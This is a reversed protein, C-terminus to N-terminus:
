KGICFKSFIDKLLKKSHNKGTIKNLNKQIIKLEEAFLDNINKYKKNKIDYFYFFAKKFHKKIKKLIILQKKNIIYKQTSQIKCNTINKLESKLINIGINKKASIYIYKNNKINKIKAKKNLIDIKNWLFFKKTKLPLKKINEIDKKTIGKCINLIYLIIDSNKIEEWTKKIGIKEIKNIKLNKKNINKIGATDTINFIIGNIEIKITIKDRTTGAINTVIATNTNSLNNLLSSKGVNPRGIISVNIGEEFIIKKTINLFIKKLFKKINILKKYIYINENILIIEESFNLITEVFIRLKKIKKEINLFINSTKKSLIKIAFNAADETQAKILNNIAEAQLLNIKKNLFARQTFEGKKAIKLNINKGIKLCNSFIKKLIIPNGHCHIELLNEGTYSNPSKFYIIIVNDIINGKIDKINTNIAYRPKINKKNKNCIKNIIYWINDGSIRIIGIGSYGLPTSIAIIPHSYFNM